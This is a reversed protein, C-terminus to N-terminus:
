RLDPEGEKAHVLWAPLILVPLLAALSLILFGAFVVASASEPHFAFTSLLPSLMFGAVSAMQLLAIGFAELGRPVVRLTLNMLPISAFGLLVARGESVWPMSLSNVLFTLATAATTLAVSILLLKRLSYRRCLWLYALGGLMITVASIWSPTFAHRLNNGKWGEQLQVYQLAGKSALSLLFMLFGSAWFSRSSILTRFAARPRPVTGPPRPESVLSRWAFGGFALLVVVSLIATWILKRERLAPSLVLLLLTGSQAAMVRLGSVTGTIGCHQGIDVALGQEATRAVSLALVLSFQAAFLFGLEKPVIALVPWLLIAAGTGLLLWSRRRTGGIGIIDCLALLPVAAWPLASAGLLRAQRAVPISDGSWVLERVPDALDGPRALLITISAAALVALLRPLPSSLTM